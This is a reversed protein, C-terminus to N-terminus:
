SDNTAICQIDIDESVMSSMYYSDISSYISEYGYSNTLENALYM